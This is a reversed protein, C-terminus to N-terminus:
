LKKKDAPDTESPKQSDSPHLIGVYDELLKSRDMSGPAFIFRLMFRCDEQCALDMEKARDMFDLEDHINTAVTKLSYYKVDPKAVVDDRDALLPGLALVASRLGLAKSGHHQNSSYNSYQSNIFVPTSTGFSDLKDLLVTMYTSYRCEAHRGDLLYSSAALTFMGAIEQYTYFPKVTKPVSPIASGSQSSLPRAPNFPQAPNTLTTLPDLQDSLDSLDLSDSTSVRNIEELLDLEQRLSAPSSLPALSNIRHALSDRLPNSGGSTKSSSLLDLASNSTRDSIFGRVYRRVGQFAYKPPFVVRSRVLEAVEEATPLDIGIDTVVLPIDSVKTRNQKGSFIYKEEMGMCVYPGGRANNFVFSVAFNVARPEYTQDDISELLRALFDAKKFDHPDPKLGFEQLVQFFLHDDPYFFRKVADSLEDGKLCLQDPGYEIKLKDEILQFPSEFVQRTTKAMKDVLSDLAKDDDDSHYLGGTLSPHIHFMAGLRLKRHQQTSRGQIERACQDYHEAVTISGITVPLKQPIIFDNFTFLQDGSEVTFFGGVEFPKKGQQSTEPGIMYGLQLCRDRIQLNQPVLDRLQAIKMKPEEASSDGGTLCSLLDDNFENSQDVSLVPGNVPCTEEEESADPGPLNNRRFSNKGTTVNSDIRSIFTRSWKKGTRNKLTM